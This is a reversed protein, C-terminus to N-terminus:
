FFGEQYTYIKKLPVMRWWMWRSIPFLRYLCIGGSSLIVMSAVHMGANPCPACLLLLAVFSLGAIVIGLIWPLFRMWFRPSARYHANCAMCYCPLGLIHLIKASTGFTVHEQSLLLERCKPCRRPTPYFQFPGASEEPTGRGRVSRQM